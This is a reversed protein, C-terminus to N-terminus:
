NTAIYNITAANATSTNKVKISTISTSYAVWVSNTGVLSVGSTQTNVLITVPQDAQLFFNRAAVITGLNLVTSTNTGAITAQAVHSTYDAAAPAFQQDVLVKGTNKQM